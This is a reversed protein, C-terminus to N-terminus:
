VSISTADIDLKHEIHSRYRAPVPYNHFSHVFWRGMLDELDENIRTKLSDNLRPSSSWVKGRKTMKIVGRKAVQDGHLITLYSAGFVRMIKEPNAALDVKTPDADYVAIDADAGEGLHGKFREFGLIKSPAARTSIAVDYLSWEKEIDPLTSRESAAPHVKELWLRRQKTSMLWSLVLPYKTFPGANPHDTSIVVRWLDDVSLAFELPIAWQISNGASQPNYTYPVIGAGGPLEVDVTINAWKEGSLHHLYYEFPGDGTMTTAPGFTIQGLDTTFHKNKSFYDAFRLGGSSLDNWDTSGPDLSDLCDFSMHALHVLRKRGNHGRIDRVCELQNITTEVNGVRGLNNPHLHMPHPLGLTEVTRCIGRTVERPTINWEPITEDINRLDIGHAWAYTGGPNVVKVGLGGVKELTWAIYAALGSFDDESIYHFTIMSNCFMPLMGTDLNPLDEIEEWASLAKVAPLAPEIVTTYGMSSYRYGIIYSSPMTHGVGGRTHKTRPVPDDRHDEPCMARGYGLKCGVIHSHLDVGGPMVIRGKLDIKQAREAVKEVIKGNSVCIDQVEGDIRNLPDYVRGNQLIFQCAM